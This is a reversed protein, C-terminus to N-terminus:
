RAKRGGASVRPVLEQVQGKLVEMCIGSKRFVICLHCAFVMVAEMQGALVQADILVDAPGKSWSAGSLCQGLFLHAACVITTLTSAKMARLKKRDAGCFVSHYNCVLLSEARKDYTSVVRM